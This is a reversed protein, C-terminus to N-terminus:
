ILRHFRMPRLSWPSCSRLGLRERTVRRSTFRWGMACFWGRGFASKTGNVHLLSGSSSRDKGAFNANITYSYNGSPLDSLDTQLALSLGRTPLIASDLDRWVWHLNGSLATATTPVGSTTGALDAQRSRLLEVFYLREIRPTDQTRGLRLRQSLVVDTDSKVREIQVGQREGLAEPTVMVTGVPMGHAICTAAVRGMAQRVIPADLQGPVGLNISLDLPGVFIADIGPVALIEELNEIARM